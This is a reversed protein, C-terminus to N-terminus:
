KESNGDKRMYGMCVSGTTKFVTASPMEKTKFGFLKCSKPLRPEWTVAFYECQYCNAIDAKESKM